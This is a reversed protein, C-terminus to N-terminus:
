FIFGLKTEAVAVGVGVAVVAVIAVAGVVVAVAVVALVTAAVIGAKNTVNLSNVKEPWVQPSKKFSQLVLNSM